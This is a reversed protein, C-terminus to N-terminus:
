QWNFVSLSSANDRHRWESLCILCQASSDLMQLLMPIWFPFSSWHWVEKVSVLPCLDDFKDFKNSYNTDFYDYIANKLIGLPHQDRRHLQMGLKAFITDPVNNTPDDRLVDVFWLWSCLKLLLCSCQIWFKTQPAIKWCKYLGYVLLIIWYLDNLDCSILKRTKYVITHSHTDTLLNWFRIHWVSLLIGSVSCLSNLYM